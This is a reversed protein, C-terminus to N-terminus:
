APMDRLYVKLQRLVRLGMDDRMRPATAFTKLSNIQSLVIFPLM